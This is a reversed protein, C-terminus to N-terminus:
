MERGSKRLQGIALANEKGEAMVAVIAGEPLDESISGGKSTLGPCMIDAGKMVFKIAGTDVQVRRM